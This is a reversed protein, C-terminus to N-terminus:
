DEVIRYEDSDLVSKLEDLSLGTRDLAASAKILHTAHGYVLNRLVAYDESSLQLCSSKEMM